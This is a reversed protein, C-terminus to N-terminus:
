VLGKQAAVTVVQRMIPIITETPEFDNVKYYEFALLCIEAQLDEVGSVLAEKMRETIYLTGASIDVTFLSQQLDKFLAYIEITVDNGLKTEVDIITTKMDDLVRVPTQIRQGANLKKLLYSLMVICELYKM